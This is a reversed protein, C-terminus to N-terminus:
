LSFGTLTIMNWNFHLKQQKNCKIDTESVVSVAIVIYEWISGVKNASVWDHDDWSKEFYEDCHYSM